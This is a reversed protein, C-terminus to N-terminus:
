EICVEMGETLGEAVWYNTNDSGGAVFSQYLVSGDKQKLKVYTVGGYSTVARRPVLLVNEMRRTTVKVSYLNRSWWGDRNSISGVMDGADEGSVRVLAYGEGFLEASVCARNLTVVTGQVTRVEGNANNYTVEATNGYTLVGNPDEVIIYNTGQRSLMVLNQDKWLLDGEVLSQQWLEMAMNTVIGDYPAKVSTIAFDAKMEEILKELDAITEQRAEIAKKNEKQDGKLLEELREYERQLKKENRALEVDDAKVRLTFLVDGKKVPQNINVMLEGFYATGYTVPNCIWEQQPYALYGQQSFEHSVSGKELTLTSKATPADKATLVKDGEEVGSLVEVYVGDQMGTRVPTYVREGAELLYLFSGEEDKTVADKPVTLVDMRSQKIVVIAVYTGLEMDEAGEPLKFTTYSDTDNEAPVYEVDYEIGNIVAYVREAKSINEKLIYDCRITKREPDAVAAMPYDAPMEAGQNMLQMNVVVGNIDSLVTSKDRDERLRRLLTQNHAADLQYLETRQRLAEEQKQRSILANRYKAEYFMNDSAWQEYTLGGEESDEDGSNEVEPSKQEPKVKAWNEVAQEWVKEDGRAKELEEEAEQVYEVFEKAERAIIKELDEIQEDMYETDTSMLTQGKRVTDGPLAAYEDFWMNSEVSYEKTYPCILGSYVSADYLNRRAVAEYSEGVGVPDLLEVDEPRVAPTEEGCGAVSMVLCACSLLATLFKIHIRNKM